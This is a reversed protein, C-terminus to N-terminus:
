IGNRESGLNQLGAMMMWNEVLLRYKSETDVKVPEVLHSGRFNKLMAVTLGDSKGFFKTKRVCLDDNLM